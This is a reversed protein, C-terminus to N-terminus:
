FKYIFATDQYFDYKVVDAAPQSDYDYSIRFNLFLHEIIKFRLEFKNATVFDSIDDFKPQYYSTFSLRIDDKFPYTFAIYSNIRANNESPDVSTYHINEYLAGIGVFFKMPFYDRLLHGRYGGGVLRRKQILKFKDEQSQVFLEGVHYLSSLNHIYRLHSYIKQVNKVGSAKGYEGSIQFWTIYTTNSDYVVRASAKYSDTESNGRKTSLSAGAEGSLGVDEGMEIPVISILAFLPTGLLVLLFLRAM